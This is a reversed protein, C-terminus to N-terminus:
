GTKKFTELIKTAHELNEPSLDKMVRWPPPGLKPNWFLDEPDIGYVKALINLHDINWRKKGRGRELDSLYSVAIKAAAAAQELTM